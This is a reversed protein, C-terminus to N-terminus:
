KGVPGECLLETTTTTTTITATTTTTATETTTETTTTKNGSVRVPGVGGSSGTAGTTCLFCRPWDRSTTHCM